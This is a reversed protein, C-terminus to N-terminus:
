VDRYVVRGDFLTMDVRVEPLQSLPIVLINRSLIALDARYGPAIVGLDLTKHSIAPTITYAALAEAV